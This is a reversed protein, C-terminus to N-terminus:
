SDPDDNCLLSPAVSLMAIIPHGQMCCSVPFYLIQCTNNAEDQFKEVLLVRVEACSTCKYPYSHKPLKATQRIPSDNWPFNSKQLHNGSPQEKKAQAIANNAFLIFFFTTAALIIISKKM